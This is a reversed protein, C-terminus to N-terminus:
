RGPRTPQEPRTAEPRAPREAPTEPRTAAPRTTVTEPRSDRFLQEPRDGRAIADRLTRLSARGARYDAERRRVERGLDLVESSRFGKRVAEAMVAAGEPVSLQADKIFALGRAASPLSESSMPALKRLDRVEDPTIGGALSEALLTVSAERATNPPTTEMERLLGDATELQTSMQRVVLEIRKPDAGKALGERIKNTLPTVPLRKAAAGDALRLLADVEEARGGRDVRLRVLADRESPTVAQAACVGPAILSLLVVLLLM